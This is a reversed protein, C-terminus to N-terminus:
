EGQSKLRIFHRVLEWAHAVCHERGDALVVLERYVNTVEAASIRPGRMSQGSADFTERFFRAGRVAEIVGEPYCTNSRMSATPTSRSGQSTVVRISFSGLM